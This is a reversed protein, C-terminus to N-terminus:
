FSKLAFHRGKIQGKRIRGSTVTSVGMGDGLFIVLNKAINQNLKSNLISEITNKAQENWKQPNLDNAFDSFVFTNLLFILLTSIKNFCFFIRLLNM